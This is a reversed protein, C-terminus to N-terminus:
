DMWECIRIDHNGVKELATILSRRGARTEYKSDHFIVVMDYVALNYIYIVRNEDYFSRLEFRSHLPYQQDNCPLIPSRTTAHVMVEKCDCNKEMMAATLMPVFMFEESGLVLVRQGKLEGLEELLGEALKTCCALYSYAEVGFRPDDPCHIKLTLAETKLNNIEVPYDVADTFTYQSLVKSYDQQELRSVFICDIDHTTFWEMREETMGNLISAIGFKVSERIEAKLLELLNLITNGTTVEDEAFIIRDIGSVLEVLKNKVLKQEVAHSHIESFYLYQADPRVERTTQIYRTSKKQFCALAAGIATATEAFGIILLNENPYLQTLKQSLCYFLEFAQGPKVPIHKGQLPNVLLYPRKTNNDRKAISLLQDLQYM